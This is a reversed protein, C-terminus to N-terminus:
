RAPADCQHPHRWGFPQRDAGRRRACRGSGGPGASRRRGAPCRRNWRRMRGPAPPRGRRMRRGDRKPGPLAQGPQDVSRRGRLVRQGRDRCRVPRPDCRHHGAAAVARGAGRHKRSSRGSRPRESPHGPRTRAARHQGARRPEAGRQLAGASRESDERDQARQALNLTIITQVLGHQAGDHLDRVIRRRTDDAATVLRARSAALEERAQANAIATAVLGTFGALEHEIGAPLGDEQRSAVIIVGWLHGEVDIPAGAASRAGSRLGIATAESTDDKLRDVRAPQETEFVKTTVNNGGVTATQGVWDAPGVSSWGGVFEISGDGQYRGVFALDVAPLLTAVEEAVASFVLEPAVGRAVLTAVRRLASQEDAVQKLEDRAEANAIATAALETFAALRDETDPPLAEERELSVTMVGWLQGEVTIPVGVSSRIGIGQVWRTVEAADAGYSDVRAPHGSRFVVSAVNRGGLKVESGLPITKGDRRWGVVGTASPGPGYRAIMAIDTSMLRGAEEAVVGLVSSSAGGRAVLTAVRRLAAQEEAARRSETVDRAVAYVLGEEAVARASWELWRVSGDACVNRNEFQEVQEGRSLTAFIESSRELDDPHTLDFGRRSLLVDRSYGLTREFAPNVRKFYGDFGIVCMLDLSMEFTRASEREAHERREQLEAFSAMTENMGGLLQAWVGDLGSVDARHELRNETVARHEARIEDVLREATAHVDRFAGAVDGIEDKSGYEM